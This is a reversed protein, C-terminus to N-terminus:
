AEIAVAMSMSSSQEVESSSLSSRPNSNYKSLRELIENEEM